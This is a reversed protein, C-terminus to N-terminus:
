QLTEWAVGLPAILDGTVRISGKLVGYLTEPKSRYPVLQCVPQGHKTIVLPEGTAAVQDMLHLCKAKFASATIYKM